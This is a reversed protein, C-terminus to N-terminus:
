QASLSDIWKASVEGIKTPQSEQLYHMGPGIEEVKMRPLDKKFSDVYESSEMIAGPKGLLLLLPVKSKQLELYNAQIRDHNDKPTGDIPIEAPFNRVPIRDAENIYPARYATMEAESMKRGSMLPVLTNVFYNQKVILDYGEEPDRFKKFMYTNIMGWESWKMPRILTEMMVIGKVQNQHRMAYDIGIAGGWDHVVLFCEKLNLAKMFGDFYRIHDELRYGIKPKDSKGMGILDLAIARHGKAVIPIINRWLYSSTPNGHIFVVPTGSGVDVYHIKSGEATTLKSEFPFASSINKEAEVTPALKPLITMCGSFALTIIIAALYRKMM